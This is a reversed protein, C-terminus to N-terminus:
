RASAGRVLVRSGYPALHMSAPSGVIVGTLVDRWAKGNAPPLPANQAEARVNCLIMAEEGGARRWLAVVDETSLDTAVGARLAPHTKRLALTQTTWRRTEPGTAFDVASAEFLPIRKTWGVEQGTYVLAAGGSLAALTFASRVGAPTRFMELPTGDWADWDHNSTFRLPAKGRPAAALERVAAQGVAKASKGAFAEKLRYSFEWGYTLDFGAGYLEPKAGEALILLPRKSGARLAGIAERWFDTPVMGAADCRFGDIGYRTVWGQMSAIMARRMAPQAFDLDAVDQWNTGTPIVIEGKADHSYWNPHAQVWPHDWATHNAVWDLIVRMGRRHAAHLLTRFEADTGFEPNLRDYDAVAYPSGLAGVSRVRGVPHIPMLWLVDAGLRRVAPIQATLAAFGAKPGFARLNAEYVVEEAVTRSPPASLVLLVPAFVM